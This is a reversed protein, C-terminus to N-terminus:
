WPGRCARYLHFGVATYAGFALARAAERIDNKVEPKSAGLSKLTNPLNTIQKDFPCWMLILSELSKPLNSIVNNYKIKLHKVKSFISKHTRWYHLFIYIDCLLYKNSTMYKNINLLNLSSNKDLYKLINEIVDAFWFTEM